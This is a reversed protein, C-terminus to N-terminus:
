LPLIFRVGERAPLSWSGDAATEVCNLGDTVVVGGMGNGSATVRGKVAAADLAFTEGAWAVAGGAAANKLFSRRNIDLM